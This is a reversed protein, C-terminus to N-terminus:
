KTDGTYLSIPRFMTNNEAQELIHASWGVVRSASFTPTYLSSEMNLIKMIVAAYFDVNTFLNQNPKYEKLLKITVEEIYHALEIWNNSSGIQSVMKKLIKARPDYTKYVRHGFGIIRSDNELERRLWHEVNKKDKIESLMNIVGLLAGGHLSGKMAGMAGTIASVMDSETSTIVRAAFTSANMGHEMTLIMYAELAKLKNPSPLSGTLMYLYNETHSLEMNPAIYKLGREKRYLTAIIIPMIATIRIADDITPKWKFHNTGLSSLITRIKSMMDAEKPLNEILQYMNKPLARHAKLSRSFTDLEEKDPLYGHWLLYSIEEFSFQLALKNISYGRYTLQGEQGNILSIKTEVVTVDKLGKHIM